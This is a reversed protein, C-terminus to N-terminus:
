VFTGKMLTEKSLDLQDGVVTVWDEPVFSYSTVTGLRAMISGTHLRTLIGGGYGQTDYSAVFLSGQTQPYLQAMRKRPSIFVPVQGELAYDATCLRSQVLGTYITCITNLITFTLHTYCL